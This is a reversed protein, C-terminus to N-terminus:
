SCVLHGMNFKWQAQNQGGISIQSAQVVHPPAYLVSIAKDCMASNVSMPAHGFGPIFGRADKVHGHLHLGPRVRRINEALEKSGWNERQEVGTGTSSDTLIQDLRGHAPGHTVLVHIGEPIEDFRGSTGRPAWKRVSYNCKHGWHWPSGYFRLGLITAENHCLVHTANPLRKRLEDWDNGLVRVDRSGPCVVRYQYLHSVSALWKDFQEYESVTGETCFDGTHVLIDGSPLFTNKKDAQLFNNTDSMHIIRVNQPFYLSSFTSNPSIKQTSKEKKSSSGMLFSSSSSRNYLKSFSNNKNLKLTNERGSDSSAKFVKIIDHNEGDTRAVDIKGSDEENKDKDKCSLKLKASDLMIKSVDTSKRAFVTVIDDNIDDSRKLMINESRGDSKEAYHEDDSLDSVHGDEHKSVKKTESM